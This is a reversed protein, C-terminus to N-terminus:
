VTGFAQSATTPHVFWGLHDFEPPAPTARFGRL